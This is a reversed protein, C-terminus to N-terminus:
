VAEGNGDEAQPSFSRALFGHDFLGAAIMILGIATMVGPIHSSFGLTSWFSDWGALPLLSILASVAAFVLYHSLYRGPYTRNAGLYEFLFAFAFFLGVASVKLVGSTDLVFAALGLLGATISIVVERRRDKPNASVRGFSKHYYRDVLLKLPVLVILLVFFLSLDGQRSNTWIGAGATFLGIIALNLGKLHNFNATVFRIKELREM